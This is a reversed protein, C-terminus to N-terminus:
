CVYKNIWFKGRTKSKFLVRKELLVTIGNQVSKRCMDLILDPRHENFKLYGDKFNDHYRLIELLRHASIPVDGLMNEGNQAAKRLIPKYEDMFSPNNAYTEEKNM